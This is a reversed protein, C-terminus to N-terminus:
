IFFLIVLALVLIVAVVIALGTGIRIGDGVTTNRTQPVGPSVKMYVPAKYPRANSLSKKCFTCNDNTNENKQGCWSCTKM